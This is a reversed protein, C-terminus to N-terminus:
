KAVQAMQFDAVWHQVGLPSSPDLIDFAVSTYGQRKLLALNPKTAALRPMDVWGSDGPKFAQAIVVQEPALAADHHKRYFEVVADPATRMLPCGRVHSNIAMGSYWIRTGCRLCEAREVGPVPYHNRKNAAYDALEDATAKVRRFDTRHIKM